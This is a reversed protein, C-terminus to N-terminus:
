DFWAQRAGPLAGRGRPEPVNPGGVGHYDPSAAGPPACERVHRLTRVPGLRRRGGPRPTPPHKEEYKTLADNEFVLDRLTEKDAGAPAEVGAESLMENLQRTTKLKIRRKMDADDANALVLLACALLLKTLTPM